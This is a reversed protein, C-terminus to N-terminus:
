KTKKNLSVICSFLAPFYWMVYWLYHIVPWTVDCSFLTMHYTYSLLACVIYYNYLYHVSDLPFEILNEKDVQVQLIILDDWALNSCLGPSIILPHYFFHQYYLIFSVFIIYHIIHWCMLILKSSPVKSKILSIVSMPSYSFHQIFRSTIVSM